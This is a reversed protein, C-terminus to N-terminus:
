EIARSANLLGIFEELGLEEARKAGSVGARELVERTRERGWERGLNNALTKRREGFCIATLRSVADPTVGEPPSKVILTCWASIVEPRPVFLHARIKRAKKPTAFLQSLISLRGYTPTSPRAVLRDAVEEQLLIGARKWLGWWSEFFRALIQSSCYYPLNGCPVVEGGRSWTELDERGLELIDGTRPTLRDPSGLRAFLTEGLVPDKEVALVEAGADLLARTLHGLGPGIEVVRDGEGIELDRAFSDLLQRDLLFSQGLHQKPTQGLAALEEYVRGPTTLLDIPRNRLSSM